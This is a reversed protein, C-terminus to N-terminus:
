ANAPTAEVEEPLPNGAEHIARDTDTFFLILM